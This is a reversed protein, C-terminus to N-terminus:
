FRRPLRAALQGLAEDTFLERPLIETVTRMMFGTRRRLLVADTTVRHARLSKWPYLRVGGVLSMLFHDTMVAGTVPRGVIYAARMVERSGLIGGVGGLALLGLVVVSGIAFKSSGVAVAVALFIALVVFPLLFDASTLVVRTARTVIKSQVEPTVVLSVQLEPGHRPQDRGELFAIDADTLLEGPLIFTRPDTVVVALGRRRAVLYCCGRPLIAQEVADVVVLRGQDDYGASVTQGVELGNRTGEAVRWMWGALRGLAAAVGLLLGALWSSASIDSRAVAEATFGTTFGSFVWRTLSGQGSASGFVGLLQDRKVQRHRRRDITVSRPQTLQM